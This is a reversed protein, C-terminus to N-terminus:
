SEVGSDAVRALECAQKGAVPHISHYDCGEYLTACLAEAAPTTRVRGQEASADTICTNKENTNAARECLKEALRRCDGKCGIFVLLLGLVSVLM